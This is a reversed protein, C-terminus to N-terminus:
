WCLSLGTLPKSSFASAHRNRMPGRANPSGSRVYQVTSIVSYSYEKNSVSSWDFCVWPPAINGRYCCWLGCSVSLVAKVLLQRLMIAKRRSFLFASQVITTIRLTYALRKLLTPPSNVWRTSNPRDNFIEIPPFYHVAVTDCKNIILFQDQKKHVKAEWIRPGTKQTSQGRGPILLLRTIRYLTFKKWGCFADHKM